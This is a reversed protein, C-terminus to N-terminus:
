RRSAFLHQKKLHTLATRVGALHWALQGCTYAPIGSKTEWRGDGIEEVLAAFEPSMAEIATRIAVRDASVTVGM